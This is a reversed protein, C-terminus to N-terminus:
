LGTSVRDRANGRQETAIEALAVADTEGLM